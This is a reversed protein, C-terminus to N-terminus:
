LGGKMRFDEISVEGAEIKRMLDDILFIARAAQARIWTTHLKLDDLTQINHSKHRLIVAFEDAARTAHLLDKLHINVERTRLEEPTLENMKRKREERGERRPKPKKSKDPEDTV